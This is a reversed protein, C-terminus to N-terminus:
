PRVPGTLTLPTLHTTGSQLHMLLRLLRMTDKSDSIAAVDDLRDQRLAAPGFNMCGRLLWMVAGIFLTQTMM